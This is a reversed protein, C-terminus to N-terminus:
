ASTEGLKTKPFGKSRGAPAQAKKIDKALKVIYAKLEKAGKAEAKARVPEEYDEHMKHDQSHIHYRLNDLRDGVWYCEGCEFLKDAPIHVKKHTWSEEQTECLFDCKKCTLVVKAKHGKSRAHYDMEWTNQCTYSCNGCMRMRRPMSGHSTQCHIKMEMDSWCKYDCEACKEAVKKRESSLHHAETLKWKKADNEKEEEKKNEKPEEELKRKKTEPISDRNVEKSDGNTEASDGNSEPKSVDGNSEPKTEDINSEPKVEGGNSESKTGGGNSEPKTEDMNSEPKVEGGNSEPKPEDGNSEPNAEDGNSESKTGDGNSEPKNEDVNSEPKAEDKDPKNETEEVTKMEVNAANEATCSMMFCCFRKYFHIL